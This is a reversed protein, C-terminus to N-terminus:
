EFQVAHSCCQNRNNVVISSSVSCHYCQLRVCVPVCLFYCSVLSVIGCCCVPFWSIVSTSRRRQLCSTPNWHLVTVGYVGLKSFHGFFLLSRLTNESQFTRVAFLCGVAQNMYYGYQITRVHRLCSLENTASHLSFWSGGLNEWKLLSNSSPTISLVTM